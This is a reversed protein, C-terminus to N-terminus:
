AAALLFEDSLRRAIWAPKHQPKDTIVGYNRAIENRLIEYQTPLNGSLAAYASRARPSKTMAAVHFSILNCIDREPLNPIRPAKRAHGSKASLKALATTFLRAEVAFPCTDIAWQMRERAGQIDGTREALSAKLLFSRWDDATVPNDNEILREALEPKGELILISALGNRAKTDAQDEDVLRRYVAGAADLEGLRRLMEARLLVLHRQYPFREVAADITSLARDYRGERRYAATRVLALRSDKPFRSIAESLLQRASAHRGMLSAMEAHRAAARASGPFRDSTRRAYLVAAKYEGLSRLTDILGIHAEISRPSREAIDLYRHRAEDLKGTRRCIDALGNLAALKHKSLKEAEVFETWAEDFRGRRALLKAHNLRPVHEYPFREVVDAAHSLADDLNGMDNEVNSIGVLSYIEHETNKFNLAVDAYAGLADEYRGLYRM